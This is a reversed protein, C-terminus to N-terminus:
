GRQVIREFIHREFIHVVDTNPLLITSIHKYSDIEPLDQGASFMEIHRIEKPNRLDVIAWLCIDGYQVQVDLIEAGIPLMLESTGLKYECIKKM